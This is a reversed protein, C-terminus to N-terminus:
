GHRTSGDSCLKRHPRKEKPAARARMRANPGREGPAPKAFGIRFTRYIVKGLFAIVEEVMEIELSGNMDGDTAYHDIWQSFVDTSAEAHRVTISWELADDPVNV